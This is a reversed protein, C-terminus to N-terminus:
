RRRNVRIRAVNQALDRLLYRREGREGRRRVRGAKIWRVITLKPVGMALAERWTVWKAGPGPERPGTCRAELHGLLDVPMVQTDCSPCPVAAERVQARAHAQKEILSMRRYGTRDVGGRVQPSQHDADSTDPQDPTVPGVRSPAIARLEIGAPGARAGDSPREWPGDSAPVLGLRHVRLLAQASARARCGHGWASGEPIDAGAVLLPPVWRVSIPMRPM